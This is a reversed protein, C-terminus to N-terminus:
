QLYVLEPSEQSHVKKILCVSLFLKIRILIQSEYFVREAEKM